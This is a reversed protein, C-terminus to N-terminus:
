INFESFKNIMFIDISMNLLIFNKKFLYNIIPISKDMYNNEFAIVPFLETISSNLTTEAMGGKKNKYIIIVNKGKVFTALESSKNSLKEEISFKALSPIIKFSFGNWEFSPEAIMYHPEGITNEIRILERLYTNDMHYHLYELIMLFKDDNRTVVVKM